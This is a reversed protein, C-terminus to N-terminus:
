SRRRTAVRASVVVGILLMMAGAGLLAINSQPMGTDALADGKAPTTAAGTSTPVGSTAPAGTTPPVTTPPTTTPPTTTPPVTTPPVTTPPVITPALATVVPSTEGLRNTNTASVTEGHTLPTPLTCSWTSDAAVAATCLVTDSSDRVTVTTSPDSKGSVTAGTKQDVVLDTVTPAPILPVNFPVRASTNGAADRLEVWLQEGNRYEFPSTALPVYLRTSTSQNQRAVALADSGPGDYVYAQLGGEFLTGVLSLGSSSLNTPAAPETIDPAILPFPDSVNAIPQANDVMQMFLREGNVQAPNLVASWRVIQNVTGSGLVTGAENTVVVKAQGATASGAIRAGDPDITGVVRFPLTATSSFTATAAGAAGSADVTIVTNPPISAAVPTYAISFAGTADATGRGIEDSGIRAVVVANPEASGVIKSGVAHVGTVPTAAQATPSALFGFVAIAAVALVAVLALAARRSSQSLHM